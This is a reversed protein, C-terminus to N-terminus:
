TPANNQSYDDVKTPDKWFTIGNNFIADISRKDDAPISGGVNSGITKVYNWAPRASINPVKLRNTAYGFKDFFDDIIQAMFKNVSMRGCFFNQKRTHSTVNVNSNNLSGKCVDAQISARYHNNVMESVAGVVTLGIGIGATAGSVGVKTAASVAKSDTILQSMLGAKAIEAGSGTAKNFISLSEPVSNQALWASYSDYNWACMPYGNIDISETCCTQDSTLDGSGDNTQTIGKYNHPRLVCTVPMLPTCSLLFRPTYTRYGNDDNFFEFRLNLERGNANDVHFLNYPYTYLKKNRPLYGDLTDNPSLKYRERYATEPMLHEPSYTQINEPNNLWIGEDPIEGYELQSPSIACKPLMYIAVIEEPHGQSVHYDIIGNIGNAGVRTAPFVRYNCGSYQGYMISGSASSHSSTVIVFGYEDLEEWIKEYYNFVLEGTDVPEAVINDGIVDTASHEREVFCKTLVIDKLWSQMVDIEYYVDSTVNNIYEISTIFAYFWKSGFSTNQFMMYNCDYLDEAKYNVRCVGKNVRQYSQATLNYKTMSQFYATQATLGAFYLTNIYDPELPVNRLLRINSNPAIYM